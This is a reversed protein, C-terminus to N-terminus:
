PRGEGTVKELFRVLAARDEASGITQEPMKTGPTYASPGIEFLRSVTEPTWIIDMKTLAPSYRYGPATGIKRGFIRHLTPGARNGDDPSLTHCAICARFVTAGPDDAHAKLVEDTTSVAVGDLAEGTRPNWRRVLRDSGAALLTEGDPTFALSWVPLAPGVLTASVKRAARDVLSVAGRLSSIAVTRGDPSLALAILPSPGLDLDAEPAGDPKLFRLRGDAAALMIEGDSAVALANLPAPFSVVRPEGGPLPWFRLTADYGASILTAGDRSFAVANVNGQHGQLARAESGDALNWLRIMRDWSGSALTKGDPSLALSAVPGAHGALIRDPEPKGPAWLAIRGEEGGTAFRGNPLALVANVAGDHFRLVQRASDNDLSWVIASTDFSGTIALKGDPSVAVARVPGGHGRLAAASPWSLLFVALCFLIKDWSRSM